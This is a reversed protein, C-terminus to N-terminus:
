GTRPEPLGLMGAIWRATDSVSEVVHPHEHDHNVNDEVMSAVLRPAYYPAAVRAADFREALTPYRTISKTKGDALVVVSKFKDRGRMVRLLFEHPLEGTKRAKLVTARSVKNPTGKKRGGTKITGKKRGAM